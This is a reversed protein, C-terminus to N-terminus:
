LWTFEWPKGPNVSSFLFMRWISLMLKECFDVRLPIFLADKLYECNTKLLVRSECFSLSYINPTVIRVARAVADVRARVSPAYLCVIPLWRRISRVDKWPLTYDSRLPYVAHLVCTSVIYTKEVSQWRIIRIHQITQVWTAARMLFNCM